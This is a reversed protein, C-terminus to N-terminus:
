WKNQHSRIDRSIGQKEEAESLLLKGDNIKVDRRPEEKRQNSNSASAMTHLNHINEILICINILHGVIYYIM